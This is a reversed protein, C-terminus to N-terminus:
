SDRYAVECALAALRRQWEVPLEATALTEHALAVLQNIWAEVERHAASGSLRERLAQAEGREVLDRFAGDFRVALALLLTRKGSVLDLGAPKGSVRGDGFADILDDRLQFAEGLAEGYRQFAVTLDSRGALLAGIVLPRHVTYRGSKVLSIYRAAETDPRREAAATVDVAQGTVLEARLEFWERTVAPSLDAMLYDAYTWALDGALVAMSEGYRRPDGSWGGERHIDAYRVHAAPRSRHRDAEDM